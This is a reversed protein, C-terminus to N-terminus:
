QEPHHQQQQQLQEQQQHQIYDVHQQQQQIHDVIAQDVHQQQQQQIHDVIPQDVHQQQQQQIHDVIPQDVHQQQQIHDVIPQDVHQQQQQIHDVIPQDVHQQQQQQPVHDNVAQDLNAQHQQEFHQSEIHQQPQEPPLHANQPPDIHQQEQQHVEIYERPPHQVHQVPEIHPQERQHQAIHEPPEVHLQQKEIHQQYPEFHVDGDRGQGGNQGQHAQFQLNNGQSPANGGHQNYIPQGDGPPHQEMHIQQGQGQDHQVQGFNDRVIPAQHSPDMPPAHGQKELELRERDEYERVFRELEEDTYVKQEDLTDWGEDKGFDERNTSKLFEDLSILKDGNKDVENFVHERMRNMEEYREILDDEPNNPDYVKDLPLLSFHLGSPVSDICFGEFGFRVEKQFLAEVEAEDLMMDGNQDHLVFFTRPDFDDKEMGDSEEWVEELQDKSIQCIYSQCKDILPNM